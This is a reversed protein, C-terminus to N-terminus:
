KKNKYPYQENKLLYNPCNVVSVCYIYHDIMILKKSGAVYKRIKHENLFYDGTMAHALLVRRIHIKRDHSQNCSKIFYNIYKTTNQKKRVKLYRKKM